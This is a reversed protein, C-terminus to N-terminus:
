RFFMVSSEEPWNCRRGDGSWRTQAECHRLITGEDGSRGERVILAVKGRARTCTRSGQPWIRSSTRTVRLSFSEKPVAKVRCRFAFIIISNDEDRVPWQREREVGIYMTRPVQLGKGFLM